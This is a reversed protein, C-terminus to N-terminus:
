ISAVIECLNRPKIIIVEELTVEETIAQMEKSYQHQIHLIVVGKLFSFAPINKVMVRAWM